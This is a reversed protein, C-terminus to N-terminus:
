DVIFTIRESDMVIDDSSIIFSLFRTERVHFECKELKIYLDHDLFYQLIQHVHQVHGEHTNNTYILIDDLYVVYFEDLFDRLADNIYFQFTALTNCLDFPM